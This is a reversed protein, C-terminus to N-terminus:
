AWQPIAHQAFCATVLGAAGSRAQQACWRFESTPLDTEEILQRHTTRVCMATGCDFSSVPEFM